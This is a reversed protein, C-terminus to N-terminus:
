EGQRLSLTTATAPPVPDQWLGLRKLGAPDWTTVAFHTCEQGTREILDAHIVERILLRVREVPKLSVEVVSKESPSLDRDWGEM